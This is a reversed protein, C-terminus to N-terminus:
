HVIRTAPGMLWGLVYSVLKFAVVLAIVKAILTSGLVGSIPEAVLWILALFGLVILIFLTLM